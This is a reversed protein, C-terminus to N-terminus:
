KKSRHQSKFLIKILVGSVFGIAIILALEQVYSYDTNDYILVTSLGIIIGLAINIKREM